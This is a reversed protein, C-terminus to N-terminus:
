AFQLLCISTLLIPMERTGTPLFRTPRFRPVNHPARSVKCALYCSPNQISNTSQQENRDMSWRSIVCGQVPM